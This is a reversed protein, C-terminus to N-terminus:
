SNQTDEIPFFAAATIPAIRHNYIRTILEIFKDKNMKNKLFNCDSCCPLCNNKTYGIESDERDIGNVFISGNYMDMGDKKKVMREKPKENCYFCNMSTIEKFLEMDIDFGLGRREAGRKYSYFFSNMMAEGHSKKSYSSGSRKKIFNSDHQSCGCSKIKTINTRLVETKNGCECLCLAKAPRGKGQPIIDVVILRGNKSGIQITSKRGM